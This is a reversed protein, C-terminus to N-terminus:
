LSVGVCAARWIHSIEGQSPKCDSKFTHSNLVRKARFGQLFIFRYNVDSMLCLGSETKQEM